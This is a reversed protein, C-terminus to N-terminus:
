PVPSTEAVRNHLTISHIFFAPRGASAGRTSALRLGSPQTKNRAPVYEIAVQAVGNCPFLVTSITAMATHEFLVPCIAAAISFAATHHSLYFTFTFARM